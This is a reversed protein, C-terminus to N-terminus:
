NETSYTTKLKQKLKSGPYPGNGRFFGAVKYGTGATGEMMLRYYFQEAGNAGHLLINMGKQGPIPEFEVATVSLPYQLPHMQSLAESFKEVPISKKANESLLFFGNPADHQVFAVLAFQIASKAAMDEDHSIISGSCNALVFVGVFTITRVFISKM